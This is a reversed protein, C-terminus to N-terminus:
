RGLILESGLHFISVDLHSLRLWFFESLIDKMEACWTYLIWNRARKESEWIFWGSWSSLSEREFWHLYSLSYHRAGSFHYILCLQIDVTNRISLVDRTQMSDRGRCPLNGWHKQANPVRSTDNLLCRRCFCLTTKSTEVLRWANDLTVWDHSSDISVGVRWHRALRRHRRTTLFDSGTALALKVWAIPM